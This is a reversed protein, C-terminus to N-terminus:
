VYISLLHEPFDFREGSCFDCNQTVFLHVSIVGIYRNRIEEEGLRGKLLEGKM